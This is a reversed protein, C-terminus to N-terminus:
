GNFLSPIRPRFFICSSAFDGYKNSPSRPGSAGRPACLITLRATLQSTKRKRDMGYAEVAGTILECVFADVSACDLDVESVAANVAGHSVCRKCGVAEFVEGFNQLRYLRLLVPIVCSYSGGLPGNPM